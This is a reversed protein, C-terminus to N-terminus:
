PTGLSVPVGGLMFAREGPLNLVEGLGNADGTQVPLRAGDLLQAARQPQAPPLTISTIAVRAGLLSATDELHRRLMDTLLARLGPDDALLRAMALNEARAFLADRSRTIGAEAEDFWSSDRLWARVAVVRASVLTLSAVEVEVERTGDDRLAGLTARLADPRLGYKFEYAALLDGHWDNLLGPPDEGVPVLEVVSEQALVTEILGMRQVFVLVPDAPPQVPARVLWWTAAMAALLLLMGALMRGM